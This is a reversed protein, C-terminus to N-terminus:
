LQLYIIESLDFYCEAIFHCQIAMAEHERVRDMIDFKTRGVGLKGDDDCSSLISIAAHFKNSHYSKTPTAVLMQRKM